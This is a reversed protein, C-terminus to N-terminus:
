ERERRKLMYAGRAYHALAYLSLALALYMLAIGADQLWQAEHWPFVSFVALIFATAAIKGPWDSAVVVRERLLFFAGAAMLAEKCLLVYFVWWPLHETSALCLLSTLMMLKDALPDLFKGLSTIQNWKRALYGDLFDTMGALLFVLLAWPYQAQSYLYAFLPILAVRLLTLANPINLRSVM